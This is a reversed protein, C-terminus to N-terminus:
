DYSRGGGTVRRIATCYLPSVPPNHLHIIEFGCSEIISRFDEARMPHDHWPTLADFTIQKELEIVSRSSTAAGEGSPPLHYFPVFRYALERSLYYRYLFRNLYHLFPGLIDLYAATLRWPLRKTFWRYKYRWEAMHRRSRKYVHAFLIGGLKVKACIRRLAEAPEPTHQLVRHCYVVDFAGDPYPIEYISAQFVKLRESKLYRAAREVATSLDFSYIEAFPLELLVETDDGGGMGCELITKGRLDFEDFRTRDRIVKRLNYGPNRTDSRLSHWKKWQYGFSEAYNEEPEVFRAIGKIVKAVVSGDRPDVYTNGRLELPMQTKPSVFDMM